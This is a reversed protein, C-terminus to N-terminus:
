LGTRTPQALFKDIVSLKRKEREIETLMEAFRQFFRRNGRLSRKKTM